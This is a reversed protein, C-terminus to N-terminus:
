FLMKLKKSVDQLSHLFIFLPLYNEQKIRLLYSVYAIYISVNQSYYQSDNISLKYDYPAERRLVALDM